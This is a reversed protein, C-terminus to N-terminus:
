KLEGAWHVVCWEEIIQERTPIYGLRTLYMLCCYDGYTSNVIEDESLINWVPTSNTSSYPEVMEYHKM